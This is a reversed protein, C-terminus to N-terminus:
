YQHLHTVQFSCTQVPIWDQWWIDSASPASLHALKSLDRTKGGSTGLLPPAPPNRYLSTGHRPPHSNKCLSIGHRLSQVLAQTAQVTLDWIWPPSTGTRHPEICLTVNGTHVSHCVRSFVNGEQLKTPPHYNNGLM